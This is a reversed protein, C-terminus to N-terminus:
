EAIVPFNKQKWEVLGGKVVRATLFDLDYLLVGAQFGQAQNEGYVAVMKRAPIEDKRKEINEIPINIANQIHSQEFSTQPRIDLIYVSDTLNKDFISKLEDTSIFIVKAQDILSSPNGLSITKGDESKWLDLGGLLINVKSFGKNKFIEIAQSANDSQDSPYGVIIIQDDKSFDFNIQTLNEFPVNVSTALHEQVFDVQTRIDIIHQGIGRTIKQQLNKASITSLIIQTTTTVVTNTKKQFVPRFFTVLAVIIILIIGIMIVLRENQKKESAQNM